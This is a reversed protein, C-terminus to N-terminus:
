SYVKYFRDSTVPMILATAEWISFLVTGWDDRITCILTSLLRESVVLIDYLYQPNMAVWEISIYGESYSLIDTFETKSKSEIEGNGHCEKCDYEQDCHYCEIQWEGNCETCKVTTDVPEKPFSELMTRLKVKDIEISKWGIFYFKTIDYEWEWYNGFEPFALSRFSDTAFTVWNNTTPNQLKPRYSEQSVFMM